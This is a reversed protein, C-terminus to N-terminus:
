FIVDSDCLKEVICWLKRRTEIDVNLFYFTKAILCATVYYIDKLNFQRTIKHLFITRLDDLGQKDYDVYNNVIYDFGLFSQLMKAYDTLSDGNTTQIGNINGKM